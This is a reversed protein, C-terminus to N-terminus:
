LDEILQITYVTRLELDDSDLELAVALDFSLTGHFSVIKKMKKLSSLSM